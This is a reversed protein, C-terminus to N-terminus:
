QAVDLAVYVKIDGTVYTSRIFVGAECHDHSDKFIPVDKLRGWVIVFACYLLIRTNPSQAVIANKYSALM